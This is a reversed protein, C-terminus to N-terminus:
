IFYIQYFALQHMCSAILYINIWNKPEKEFKLLLAFSLFYASLKPISYIKFSLLIEIQQKHYELDYLLNADVRM